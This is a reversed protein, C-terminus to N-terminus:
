PPPPRRRPPRGEGSGGGDRGHCGRRSAPAPRCSVLRDAEGHHGGRRCGRRPHAVAARPAVAAWAPHHPRCGGGSLTPRSFIRQSLPPHPRWVRGRPPAGHHLSGVAVRGAGVTTAGAPALAAAAHLPSALRLPTVTAALLTEESQPPGSAPPRTPTRALACQRCALPVPDAPFLPRRTALRSSAPVTWSPTGAGSQEM